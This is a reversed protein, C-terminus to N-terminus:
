LAVRLIKVTEVVEVEVNGLVHVTALVPGSAYRHILMGAKVVDIGMRRFSIWYLTWEDMIEVM